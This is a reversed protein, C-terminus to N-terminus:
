ENEKVDYIADIVYPILKRKNDASLKNIINKGFNVVKEVNSNQQNSTWEETEEFNTEKSNTSNNM